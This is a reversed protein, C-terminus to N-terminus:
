MVCPRNALFSIAAPKDDTPLSIESFAHQVRTGSPNFQLLCRPGNAKADYRAYGDDNM